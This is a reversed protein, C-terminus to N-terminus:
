VITKIFRRHFRDELFEIQLRSAIFDDDSANARAVTNVMRNDPKVNSVIIRDHQFITDVTDM